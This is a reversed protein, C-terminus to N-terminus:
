YRYMRFVSYSYTGTSGTGVLKTAGTGRVDPFVRKAKSYHISFEEM